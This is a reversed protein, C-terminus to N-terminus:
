GVGRLRPPPDKGDLDEILCLFPVEEQRVHMKSGVWNTNGLSGPWIIGLGELQQSLNTSETLHNPQSKPEIKPDSTNNKSHFKYLKYTTKEKKTNKRRTSKKGQELITCAVNRVALESTKV